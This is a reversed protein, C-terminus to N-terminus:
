REYMSTSNSSNVSSSHSNNNNPPTPQRDYVNSNTPVTHSHQLKGSNGSSTTNKMSTMEDITDFADFQFGKNYTKAHRTTQLPAVFGGGSSSSPNHSTDEVIDMENNSKIKQMIPPLFSANNKGEVINDHQSNNHQILLNSNTKKLAHLLSSNFKESQTKTIFQEELDERVTSDYMQRNFLCKQRVTLYNELLTQFNIHNNHTNRVCCILLPSCFSFATTQCNYPDLVM